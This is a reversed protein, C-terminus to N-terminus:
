PKRALLRVPRGGGYDTRADAPEEYRVVELGAARCKDELFKRDFTVGGPTSPASGALFGEIVLHGGRKLGTAARAIEDERGGGYIIAVLDWQDKGFDFKETSSLVTNIKLNGAAASERAIRLGDAAIDYGTVDWGQRALWVANRGQGMAVDLVRGPKMKSVVEMLWANPQPNFGVSLTFVENWFAAEAAEGGAARHDVLICPEKGGTSWHISVLNAAEGAAQPGRMTVDGTVLQTAGLDHVALQGWKREPAAARSPGRLGALIQERTTVVARITIRVARDCLLREVTATDRKDLAAFYERTRRALDPEQQSPASADLTVLFSLALIVHSTV